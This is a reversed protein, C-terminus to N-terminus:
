YDFDGDIDGHYAACNAAHVEAAKRASEMQDAVHRHQWCYGRDIAHRECRRTRRKTARLQRRMCVRAYGESTPATIRAACQGVLQEVRGVRRLNLEEDM